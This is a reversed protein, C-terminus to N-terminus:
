AMMQLSKIVVGTGVLIGIGPIWVTLAAILVGFVAIAGTVESMIMFAAKLDKKTVVDDVLKEMDEELQTM